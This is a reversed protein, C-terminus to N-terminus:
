RRAARGEELNADERWGARHPDRRRRALAARPTALRQSGRTRVEIRQVRRGPAPGGARRDLERERDPRARPPTRPPVGTDCGGPRDPQDRAAPAAQRDPPVRATRGRCHGRQECSGRAARRRARRTRRRDSRRRDRRDAHHAAGTGGAARCGRGQARGRDPEFGLQRLHLVTAEGIGTSAGTVLVTGSAM